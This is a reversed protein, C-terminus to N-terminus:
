CLFKLCNNQGVDMRNRKNNVGVEKLNKKMTLNLKKQLKQAGELSLIM